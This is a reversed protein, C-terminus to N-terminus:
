PGWPTESGQSPFLSGFQLKKVWTTMRQLTTKQAMNKPAVDVRRVAIIVIM